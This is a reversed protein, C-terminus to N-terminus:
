LKKLFFGFVGRFIELVAVELLKQSSRQESGELAVFILFILTLAVEM